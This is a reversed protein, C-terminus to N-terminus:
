QGTLDLIFENGGDYIEGTSRFGLSEYLRIAKVNEPKTSLGVRSFGGQKADEFIAQLAARGYGQRRHGEAIMMEDIWLLSPDDERPGYMVFGVMTDDSYICYAKLTDPHFQAKAISYVNPAVFRVHDDST